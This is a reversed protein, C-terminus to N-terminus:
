RTKTPRIDIRSPMVRPPYKVFDAIVQGIDEPEMKWPQHARGDPGEMRTNVSGPLVSCVRIGESRLDLMIAETMAHLGAKSANYAAGKAIPVVSSISGINFIMSGERLHPLAAKIINFPGTLNTSIVEDWLDEELERIHAFRSIGANNVLIDIPADGMETALDMMEKVQQRNRVDCPIGLCNGNFAERIEVAAKLVKEENRGCIVVDIGAEVLKEAIGRGIGTHGGTVLALKETDEM